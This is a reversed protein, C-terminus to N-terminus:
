RSIWIMTWERSQLDGLETPALGGDDKIKRVRFGRAAIDKLFGPADAYLGPSFEMAITLNPSRAITEQMGSWVQPEHGEADIKMFDVPYDVLADIRRRACIMTPCDQTCEEFGRSGWDPDLEMEPNRLKAFGDGDSAIFDRITVRDAFGNLKLSEWLRSTVKKLPDWSEVTGEKGVWDAMMLTFYGFNAGVDICRMKPKIHRSIAITTWMEWYGNMLLHPAVSLDRVDVRMLYTGLVRSIAIHGGAYMGKAKGESWREIADREEGAIMEQLNV